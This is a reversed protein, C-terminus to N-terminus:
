RGTAALARRYHDAPRTVVRPKGVSAATRDPSVLQGIRAHWSHESLMVQREPSRGARAAMVAATLLPDVFVGDLGELARLPPAAIPVGSALYEYAKLPSVAHTTATVKFPILGVDFRQVYGPLETQPKLGLFFVNGPMTPHPAKDDGILVVAAKPFERAVEDLAKWDFWDGYLSGHYGIIMGADPLDAPRPPLDVGFVDRNVGNPVLTADRGMRKAKAVLDPASAIVVDALVLLREESEARFWEGGLAPDSWDDIIDYVLAWGADRLALGAAILPEAPAELLAMGKRSARSPLSSVDFRSVNYQELNPHIFRLGLDVSEQAEYLSVLTVHFGQRLFELALQTSRAGGGVDHMPVAALIVVPDDSVPDTRSTPAGSVPVPILGIRHGADRIRALLGPLPHDGLPVGGVGDLVDSRVVILRPGMVPEARQRNVLGPTAVEAIVSAGIVNDALIAVAEDELGPAVPLSPDDVVVLDDPPDGEPRDLRVRYTDPTVRLWRRASRAGDLFVDVNLRSRRSHEELRYRAMLRDPVLPRILKKLRFVASM